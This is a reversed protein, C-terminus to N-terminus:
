EIRIVDLRQSHHRCIEEGLIPPLQAADHFHACPFIHWVSPMPPEVGSPSTKRRQIGGSCNRKGLPRVPKRHAARSKVRFSRKRKLTECLTTRKRTGLSSTCCCAPWRCSM